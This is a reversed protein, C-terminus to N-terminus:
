FKSFKYVTFTQTGEAVLKGEKVVEELVRELVKEEPKGEIYLHKAIDTLSKPKDFFGYDILGDIVLRMDKRNSLSLVQKEVKTGDGIPWDDPPILDKVTWGLAAALGPYEHPPYQSTSSPSEAMGVYGTSHELDESLERTSKGIILRRFKVRNIVFLSFPAIKEM